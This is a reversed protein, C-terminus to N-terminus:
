MRACRDRAHRSLILARRSFTIDLESHSPRASITKGAGYPQRRGKMPQHNSTEDDGGDRRRGMTLMLIMIVRDITNDTMQGRGMLMEVGRSQRPKRDAPGNKGPGLQRHEMRDM